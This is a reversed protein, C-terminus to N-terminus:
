RLNWNSGDWVWTDDLRRGTGAGGFLVVQQRAADYVMTADQRAPPRLRPSQLSWSNGDWTWTDDLYGGGYQGGFLVTNRQAADYAMSAQSRAPPRLSLQSQALVPAPTAARDVAAARRSTGCGGLVVAILPLLLVGGPPGRM